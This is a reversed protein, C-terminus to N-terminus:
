GPISQLIYTDVQDMVTSGTSEDRQPPVGSERSIPFCSRGSVAPTVGILATRVRDAVMRAAQGSGGVSHCTATLLFLWPRRVFDSEPDNSDFYVVVYPPPPSKGTVADATVEGDYVVLAPVSNDADLLALVAAAHEEIV